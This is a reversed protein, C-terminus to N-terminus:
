CYLTVTQVFSQKCEAFLGVGGFVFPTASVVTVDCCARSYPQNHDTGRPRPVQQQKFLDVGAFRM